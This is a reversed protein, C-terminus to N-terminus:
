EQALERNGDLNEFILELDHTNCVHHAENSLYIICTNLVYHLHYINHKEDIDHMNYTHYPNGTMGPRSKIKADSNVMTIIDKSVPREGEDPRTGHDLVVRWGSYVLEENGDNRFSGRLGQVEDRSAAASEDGAGYKM